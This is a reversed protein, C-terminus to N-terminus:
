FIRNKDTYYYPTSCQPTNTDLHHRTVINPLLFANWYSTYRGSMSRIQFFWARGGSYFWVHGGSYFWAGGLYFWAHGRRIFGRMGGQIFGRVGGLYFWAHGGFLVMCAGGFLVVCPGGFLVMCAGRFLVMCAGRIFGHMGGWIFGCMGGRIFGRVGGMHVSLCRYFCLRRLSRKRATFFLSRWSIGCHTTHISPRSMFHIKVILSSLKNHCLASFKSTMWFGQRAEKKKVIYTGQMPYPQPSCFILSILVTLLSKKVSNNFLLQFKFHISSSRKDLQEVM